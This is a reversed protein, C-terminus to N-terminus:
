EPVPHDGPDRYQYVRVGDLPGDLPLRYRGVPASNEVAFQYSVEVALGNAIHRARDEANSCDAVMHPGTWQGTPWAIWVQEGLMACDVVAVAMYPDTWAPVTGAEVRYEVVDAMLGPSYRKAEGEAVPSLWALASFLIALFVNM